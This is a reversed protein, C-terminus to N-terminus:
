ITLIWASRTEASVFAIPGVPINVGLAVVAACIAAAHAAEDSGISAGATIL